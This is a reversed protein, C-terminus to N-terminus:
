PHKLLLDFKGVPSLATPTPPKSAKKCPQEEQPHTDATIQGTPSVTVTRHEDGYWFSLEVDGTGKRPVAVRFFQDALANGVARQDDTLRSAFKGYRGSDIHAM